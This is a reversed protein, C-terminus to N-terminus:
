APQCFRTPAHAARRLGRDRRLVLDGARRRPADQAHGDRVREVCGLRPAHVAGDTHSLGDVPLDVPVGVERQVGRGREDAHRGLLLVLLGDPEDRYGVAGTAAFRVPGRRRAVDDPAAHHAKGLLPVRVDRDHVGPDVGVVTALAHTCREPLLAQADRALGSAGHDQRVRRVGGFGRRPGARELRRGPASADREVVRAGAERERAPERELLDHPVRRDRQRRALVDHVRQALRGTGRGVPVPDVEPLVRDRLVPDVLEGHELGAHAGVGGRAPEVELLVRPVRVADARGGPREGVSPLPIEDRDGLVDRGSPEGPERHDGVRVVAGLDDDLLVGQHQPLM